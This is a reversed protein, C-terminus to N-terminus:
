FPKSVDYNYITALTDKMHYLKVKKITNTSIDKDKYKEENPDKLELIGSLSSSESNDDGQDIKRQM